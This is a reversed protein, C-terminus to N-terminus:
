NELFAVAILARSVAYQTLAQQDREGAAYLDVLANTLTSILEALAALEINYESRLDQCAAEYCRDLLDLDCDDPTAFPHAINKL